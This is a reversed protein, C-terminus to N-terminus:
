GIHGVKVMPGEPGRRPLVGVTPYQLKREIFDCESPVYLGEGLAVSGQLAAMCPCDRKALVCGKRGRGIYTVGGQEHDLTCTYLETWCAAGPCERYTLGLLGKCRM